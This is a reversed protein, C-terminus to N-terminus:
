EPHRVHEQHIAELTHERHERRLLLRRVVQVVAALLLAFVSIAITSRLVTFVIEGRWMGWTMAATGQRELGLAVLAASACVAFAGELFGFLPARWLWHKIPFNGLHATALAFLALLGLARLVVFLALSDPTWLLVAARWLRETVAALLAMAPLSLSLRRFAAPEELRWEVTHQPFFPTM